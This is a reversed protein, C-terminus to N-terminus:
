LEVLLWVDVLVMVFSWDLPCEADGMCDTDCIM